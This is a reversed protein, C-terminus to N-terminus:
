LERKKFYIYSLVISCETPIDRKIDHMNRKVFVCFALFFFSSHVTWLLLGYIMTIFRTKKWSSFFSFSSNKLCFEGIWLLSWFINFNQCFKLPLRRNFQFHASQGHALHTLWGLRFKRRTNDIEKIVLNVKQTLKEQTGWWFPYYPSFYHEILWIM